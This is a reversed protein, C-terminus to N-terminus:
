QSDRHKQLALDPRPDLVRKNVSRIRHLAQDCDVEFSGLVVTDEYEAMSDRCSSVSGAASTVHEGDQKFAGHSGDTRWDTHHATSIQGLRQQAGPLAVALPPVLLSERSVVRAASM